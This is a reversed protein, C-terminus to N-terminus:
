PSDYVCVCVGGWGGVAPSKKPKKCASFPLPSSQHLHLSVAPTPFLLFFHPSSLSPAPLCFFFSIISIIAIEIRLPPLFGPFDPIKRWCNNRRRFRGKPQPDPRASVRRQKREFRKDKQGGGDRKCDRSSMEPTPMGRRPGRPGKLM